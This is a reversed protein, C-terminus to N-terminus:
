VRQMSQYLRIKSVMVGNSNQEQVVATSIGGLPEWKHKAADEVAAVMEDTSTAVLVSYRQRMTRKKEDAM